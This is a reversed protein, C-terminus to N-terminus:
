CVYVCVSGVVAVRAVCPRRPNIVHLGTFNFFIIVLMYQKKAQIAVNIWKPLM